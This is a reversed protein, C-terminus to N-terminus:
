RQRHERPERPADKPSSGPAAGVRDPRARPRATKRAFRPVPGLGPLGRRALHSAPGPAPRDRTSRGAVGSPIGTGARRAPVGSELAARPCRGARACPRHGSRAERSSDAESPPAWLYPLSTVEPLRDGDCWRRLHEALLDYGRDLEEPEATALTEHYASWYFDAVAPPVEPMAELLLGLREPLFTAPADISTASSRENFLVSRLAKRYLTTTTDSSPRHLVLAELMAKRCPHSVQPWLERALVEQREDAPREKLLLATASARLDPSGSAQWALVRDLFDEELPLDNAAIIRLVVPRWPPHELMALLHERAPELDFGGNLLWMTSLPRTEPDLLERIMGALADTSGDEQPGHAAMQDVMQEALDIMPDQERERERNATAAQRVVPHPDRALVPLVHRTRRRLVGRANALATRVAPSSDKSLRGLTRADFYTDDALARAARLAVCRVDADEDRTAEVILAVVEPTFPTPRIQERAIAGLAFRRVDDDPHRLAAVLLPGLEATADPEYWERSADAVPPVLSATWAAANRDGSRLWALREAEGEPLPDVEVEVDVESDEAALRVALDLLDLLAPAIGERVCLVELLVTQHNRVSWTGEVSGGANQVQIGGFLELTEESAPELGVFGYARSGEPGSRLRPPLDTTETETGTWTRIGGARTARCLSERAEAAHRPTPFRWIRLVFAADSLAGWRATGGLIEGGRCLSWPEKTADIGASQLREVLDRPLLPNHTVDDGEAGGGLLDALRDCWGQLDRVHEERDRLWAEPREVALVTTPPQELLRTWATASGLAAHVQEVFHLGDGYAWAVWRQLGGASGAAEGPNERTATIRDFAEPVGLRRAVERSVFEAMGEIVAARALAPETTDYIGEQEFVGGPGTRGSM